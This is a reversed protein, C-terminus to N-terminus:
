LDCITFKINSNNVLTKFVLGSLNTPNIQGHVPRQLPGILVEFKYKTSDV